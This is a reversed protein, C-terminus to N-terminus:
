MFFRQPFPSFDIADQTPQRCNQFICDVDAFGGMVVPYAQTYRPTTARVRTPAFASCDLMRATHLHVQQRRTTPPRPTLRLQNQLQDTNLSPLSRSKQNPTQPKARSKPKTNCGCLGHQYHHSNLPVPRVPPSNMAKRPSDVTHRRNTTPRRMLYNSRRARSHLVIEQVAERQTQSGPLIPPTSLRQQPRPLIPGRRSLRQQTRPPLIAAQRSLRRRPQEQLNPIKPSALCDEIVPMGLRWAIGLATEEKQLGHLRSAQCIEDVILCAKGIDTPGGPHKFGLDILEMLQEIADTAGIEVLKESLRVALSVAKALTSPMKKHMELPAAQPPKPADLVGDELLNDQRAQPPPTTPEILTEAAVFDAKVSDVANVAPPLDAADQGGSAASEAKVFDAANIAPQLDPEVSSAEPESAKAEACRRIISARTAKGRQLSQLTTAAEEETKGRQLFGHGATAEQQIVLAANLAKREVRKHKKDKVNSDAEKWASIIQQQEAETYSNSEALQQRNEELLASVDEGRVSAVMLEQTKSQVTDLMDPDLAQQLTDNVETLADDMASLLDPAGQSATRVMQWKSGNSDAAQNSNAAKTSVYDTMHQWQKGEFWSSGGTLWSGGGVCGANACEATCCYVGTCQIVRM